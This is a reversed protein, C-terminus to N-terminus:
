RRRGGEPSRGARGEGGQLSEAREGPLRREREAQPDPFRQRAFSDRWAEEPRKAGRELAEGVAKRRWAAPDLPVRQCERCERADEEQVESLCLAPEAAISAIQDVAEVRAGGGPML